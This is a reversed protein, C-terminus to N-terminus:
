RQCRARLNDATYYDRHFHPDNSAAFYHVGHGTGVVSQDEIYRGDALDYQVFPRLDFAGGLEWIPIPFGERVLWLKGQADYDEAVLALWSDEDIYFFRKPSVHRMGKKVTAEVVWVRHLEYRVNKPNIMRPLLVDHLKEKFNYMGFCNYPVYMEKKGVIKWNFRDLNGNFVWPEDVTYEGEFGIQPADYDYSPMRRVRRQGPFYYYTEDDQNNMFMTLAVAQGALAPPSNYKFYISYLVNDVSDPTHSGKAGWPEYISQPGHTNIWDTSGPRPSCVTNTDPWLIGVGSYRTLFNWMVENGNQPIPFPVGPLYAMKLADGGQSLKAQTANKMINAYIWSPYGANRHTPYVYMKFGPIQKVLQVEGPSLKDAYKAVNSADIVFLPKENKYQWYDGRLKGYSWGPLPVDKGSWAPILGDKSGARIAGAPTLDKGLRAAQQPSVAWTTSAIALIAATIALVKKVM